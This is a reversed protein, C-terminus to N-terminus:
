HTFCTAAQEMAKFGALTQSSEYCLVSGIVGYYRLQHTADGLGAKVLSSSSSSSSQFLTGPEATQGQGQGRDVEPVSRDADGLINALKIWLAGLAGWSSSSLSLFPWSAATSRDRQQRMAELESTLTEILERRLRLMRRFVKLAFGAVREVYAKDASDIDKLTTAVSDWFTQWSLPWGDNDDGGQMEGLFAEHVASDAVHGRYYHHVTSQVDIPIRSLFGAGVEIDHGHPFIGRITPTPENTPLVSAPSVSPSTAVGQSVLGYGGGFCSVIWKFTSMAYRVLSIQQLGDLWWCLIAGSLSVLAM